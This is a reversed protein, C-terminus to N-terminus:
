DNQTSQGRVFPCTSWYGCWKPSCWWTGIAAPPFTGAEISKNVASFRAALANIHDPTRTTHLVQRRQSTGSDVLFDMRLEAPPQGSKVAWALHYASLQISQAADQPRPSKTTSKFDVIRNRDDVLDIVCLLDRSSAPLNVRITEEVVKPTYEPAQTLAHLRAMRAVTDRAEGTVVKIGRSAEDPNLALGGEAIRSDFAADAIEVVEGPKLDTGTSIKQKMNAEAAIHVAGGRVLAIGPPLKQGEVYRRRYREMCMGAMELQTVSLYPKDPM